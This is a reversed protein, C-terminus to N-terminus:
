ETPDNSEDDVILDICCGMMRLKCLNTVLLNIIFVKKKKKQMYATRIKDLGMSRTKLDICNKKSSHDNVRTKILSSDQLV